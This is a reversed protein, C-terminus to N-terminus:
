RYKKVTGQTTGLMDNFMVKGNATSVKSRFYVSKGCFFKLNNLDIAELNM